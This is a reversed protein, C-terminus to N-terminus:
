TALAVSLPPVTPPPAPVPWQSRPVTVLAYPLVDGGPRPTAPVQGAPGPGLHIEVATHRLVAGRVVLGPARRLAATPPP